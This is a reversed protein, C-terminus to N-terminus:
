VSVCSSGQPCDHVLACASASPYEVCPSPSPGFTAKQHRGCQCTYGGPAEPTVTCVAEEKDRFLGAPRISFDARSKFCENGLEGAQSGAVFAFLFVLLCFGKM